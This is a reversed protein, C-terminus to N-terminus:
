GHGGRGEDEEIESADNELGSANGVGPDVPCGDALKVVFVAVVEVDAFVYVWVEQGFVVSQSRLAEGGVAEEFLYEIGQFDVGLEDLQDTFVSVDNDYAIVVAFVDGVDGLPVPEAVPSDPLYVGEVVFEDFGVVAKKGPEELFDVAVGRVLHDENVVARFFYCTGPAVADPLNQVSAVFLNLLLQLGQVSRAPLM